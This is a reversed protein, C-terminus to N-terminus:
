RLTALRRSLFVRRYVVAGCWVANMGVVNLFLYLPLEDLLSCVTLLSLETGMGLLGSLRLGPRDGYWQMEAGEAHPAGKRSWTDTWAMLRDQWGYLFLFISHLTRTAGDETQGDGQRHEIIRNTSYQRILHLYSTHYYVHYSIRLTTGWFAVFAMLPIWASQDRSSWGIAAFVLANVLFDGISDLFRGARSYTQKARALQGDASDLLDKFTLGIGALATTLTTDRSYLYAACFGAIMAAMTVHNPTVPTRYLIRVLLGAAPRLLYTNILEDSYESKLSDRYSYPPMM